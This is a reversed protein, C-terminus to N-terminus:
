WMMQFYQTSFHYWAKHRRLQHEILNRHHFDGQTTVKDAAQHTFTRLKEYGDQLVTFHIAELIIEQIEPVKRYTSCTHTHTLTQTNPHRHRTDQTHTQTQLPTDKRLSLSSEHIHECLCTDRIHKRLCTVCATVLVCMCVCVCVYVCVCSCRDLVSRV